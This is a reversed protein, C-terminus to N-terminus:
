GLPQARLVIGPSPNTVVPWHFFARRSVSPGFSGARGGTRPRPQAPSGSSRHTIYHERVAQGVDDSAPPTRQDRDAPPMTNPLVATDDDRCLEQDNRFCPSWRRADVLRLLPLHPGESAVLVLGTALAAVALLGAGAAAGIAATAFISAATTIGSIIEGTGVARRVVIGGGIFGIGTVAGAIANPSGVGVLNGLVASATGILSFTRNGAPSGRLEREYGLVYTLALAVVVRVLLGGTSTGHVVM